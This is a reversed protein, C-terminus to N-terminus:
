DRGHEIALLGVPRPRISNGEIKAAAGAHLSDFQRLAAPLNRADIDHGLSQTYGALPRLLGAYYDTEHWPIGRGQPCRINASIVPKHQIEATKM